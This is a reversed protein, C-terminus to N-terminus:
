GSITAPTSLSDSASLGGNTPHMKQQASECKACRKKGFDQDSAFDSFAGCAFHTRHAGTSHEQSGIALHNSRGGYGHKWVPKNYRLMQKM